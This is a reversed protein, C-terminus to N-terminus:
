IWFHCFGMLYKLLLHIKEPSQPKYETAPKIVCVWIHIKPLTKVEELLSQRDKLKEWKRIIRYKCASSTFYCFFVNLPSSEAFGSYDWQTITKSRVKLIHLEFIQIRRVSNWPWIDGHCTSTFGSCFTCNYGNVLPSKKQQHRREINCNATRLSMSVKKPSETCISQKEERKVLPRWGPAESHM